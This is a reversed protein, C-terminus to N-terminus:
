FNRIRNKYSKSAEACIYVVPSRSMLIKIEILSDLVDAHICMSCVVVLNLLEWEIRYVLYLSKELVKLSTCCFPVSVYLCKSLLQLTHLIHVVIIVKLFSLELRLSQFFFMFLVCRFTVLQSTIVGSSSSVDMSDDETNMRVVTGRAEELERLLM